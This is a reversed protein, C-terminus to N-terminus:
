VVSIRNTAILGLLRRSPGSPQNKGSEWAEVTKSSVGFYRAFLSQTFGMKHRVAKIDQSTFSQLPEINVSRSHRPLQRTKTDDIAENLAGSLIDFAKSM